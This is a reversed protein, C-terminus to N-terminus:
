ILTTKRNTDLQKQYEELRLKRCEDKVEIPYDPSIESLECNYVRVQHKGVDSFVMISVALAFLVVAITIDKKM